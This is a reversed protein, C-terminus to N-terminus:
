KTEALAAVFDPPSKCSNAHQQRLSNQSEALVKVLVGLRLEFLTHVSTSLETRKPIKINAVEKMAWVQVARRAAACGGHSSLM